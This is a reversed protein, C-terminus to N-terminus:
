AVPLFPGLCSLKCVPGLLPRSCSGWGIPLGAEPLCWVERSFWMGRGLEGLNNVGEGGRAYSNNVQYNGLACSAGAGGAFVPDLRGSRYSRFRALALSAVLLLNWLFFVEAVPAGAGVLYVLGAPPRGLILLPLFSWSWTAM